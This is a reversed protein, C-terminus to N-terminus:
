NRETEDRKACWLESFSTENTRGAVSGDKRGEWGVGQIADPLQKPKCDFEILPVAKLPLFGV